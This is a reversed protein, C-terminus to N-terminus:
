NTLITQKNENLIEITPQNDNEEKTMPEATEILEESYDFDFDNYGLLIKAAEEETEAEVKTWYRVWVTQKEDLILNFTKM